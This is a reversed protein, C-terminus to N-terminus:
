KYFTIGHYSMGALYNKIYNYKDVM